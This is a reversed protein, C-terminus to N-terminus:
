FKTQTMREKWGPQPYYKKPHIQYRGSLGLEKRIEAAYGAPSLGPIFKV